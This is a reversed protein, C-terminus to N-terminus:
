PEEADLLGAREAADAAELYGATTLLENRDDDNVFTKPRKM